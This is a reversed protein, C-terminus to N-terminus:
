RAAVLEPCRRRLERRDAERVALEGDGGGTERVAAMVADPDSVHGLGLAHGLEHAIVLALAGRDEFAHVTIARGEVGVVRDGRLEVDETYDGVQAPPRREARRRFDEAESRVRERQRELRRRRREFESRAEELEAAERELATGTRRVERRDAESADGSENLARVRENHREIRRSLEAQRAELRRRTAALAEASDALAAQASDLTRRRQQLRAQEADYAVRIPVGEGSARRFLTRGAAREWAEAARAAAAEVDGRDLGWRPDVRGVHWAMPTRCPRASRNEPLVAPSAASASAETGVGGTGGASTGSGAAARRASPGGDDTGGAPDSPPFVALVVGVAVALLLAGRLLERM